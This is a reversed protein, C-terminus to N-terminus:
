VTGTVGTEQRRDLADQLKGHAIKTMETAQKENETAKKFFVELQLSSVACIEASRQEVDKLKTKHLIDVQKMRRERSEVLKVVVHPLVENLSHEATNLAFVLLSQM